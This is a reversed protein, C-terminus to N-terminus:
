DRPVSRNAAPEPYHSLLEAAIAAYRAEPSGLAEGDEMEKQKALAAIEYMSMLCCMFLGRWGERYGRHYIYRALFARGAAKVSQPASAKLGRTRRGQAEVTTYRDFKRLVHSADIYNFHVIAM